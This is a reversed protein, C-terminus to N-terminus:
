ENRMAEAINVKGAMYAPYVSALAALVFSFIATLIVFDPSISIPIADISYMATDLKFIKFHIQAYCFGIGIVVGLVTSIAGILLGENFFIKRVYASTAGMTRLLGIDFQKELVTMTISTLINFVAIMIILSLILFTAIRELQMVALMKSNLEQWNTVLFEDQSFKSLFKYKFDDLSYKDELKIDIQTYTNNRVNFVRRATRYDLLGLDDDLNKIRSYILGTLTSRNKPPPRFSILSREIWRPSIINIEDGPQLKLEEAIKFGLFVGGPNFPDNLSGIVAEDYLSYYYGSDIKHYSSINFIRNGNESIAIAQGSLVPTYAYIEESEELFTMLSDTLDMYMGNAPLIRVHPDCNTMQEETLERFANFVGMVVILAATGLIIGTISLYALITIINLRRKTFIYRLAIIQHLKM